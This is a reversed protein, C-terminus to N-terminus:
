KMELQILNKFIKGLVIKDLKNNLQKQLLDNIMFLM